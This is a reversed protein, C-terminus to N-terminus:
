CRRVASSHFILHLNPSSTPNTIHSDHTLSKSFMCMIMLMACEFITAEPGDFPDGISYSWQLEYPHGIQQANCQTFASSNSGYSNKKYAIRAPSGFMVLAVTARLLFRGMVGSGFIITHRMLAHPLWLWVDSPKSDISM